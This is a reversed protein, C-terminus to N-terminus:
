NRWELQTLAIRHEKAQADYTISYAGPYYGAPTVRAAVPVQMTANPKSLIFERTIMPEQFIVAGNYTGNLFTTTFKENNPPPQIEPSRIDIWHVGMQPVAVRPPPSFAFPPMFDDAPVNASKTLFAPDSPLIANRQAVEIKYFHFDFHPVTYIGAPEHGAPNWDLEIFRYPTPNQAPMSLVHMDSDLHAHGDGSPDGEMPPMPARLGELATEDLAVGVELPVGELLTVYSRARGNGLKIPTGYQRHTGPADGARDFSPTPNSVNATPTPDACAAVIFGVAITAILSTTTAPRYSM